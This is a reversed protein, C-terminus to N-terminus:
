VVDLDSLNSINAKEADVGYVRMFADAQGHNSTVPNTGTTVVDVHMNPEIMIGNCMKKRKTTIRWLTM